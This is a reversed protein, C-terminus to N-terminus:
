AGPSACRIRTISRNSAAPDREVDEDLGLCGADDADIVVVLKM